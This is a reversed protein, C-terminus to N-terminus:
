RAWQPQGSNGDGTLREAGGTEANVLYLDGQWALVLHARSPSWAFQPAVLGPENPQPFLLRKDSGDRDMVYLDYESDQSSTLSRSQGYAIPWGGGLAARGWQPNAWMGAGEVLPAQVAGDLRLAHVHFWPSDGLVAEGGTAAHLSCVLYRGDPAWSLAPTWVWEAYTHYEPFTLLEQREGRALHIVGVTTATAYAVHEGSPSWSFSSGWWAYLGSADGEVALTPTVVPAAVTQKLHPSPLAVQAVWLDNHAKWGPSGRSREATSYAIRRGDPSWGGYVVSEIGLPLPEQGLVTTEVVWLSNIQPADPDAAMRSFLLWQGDSALAFVRGDLDGATTLPRRGGSEGRMLWANGGSLYAITGELPTSPLHSRIGVVQVEHVVPRLAERRVEVRSQEQGDHLTVRYVIEEEGQQGLQVLRSEGDAMAESRLVRREFPIARREAEEVEQVRVVRVQLDPTVEQWLDPTVQDLAGLAVGAAAVAERVTGGVVTVRHAAGDAMVTVQLDAPQSQCGAALWLLGGLVLLAEHWRHVVLEKTM